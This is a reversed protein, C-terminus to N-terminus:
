NDEEAEDDDTESYDQAYGKQHFQKIIAQRYEFKKEALARLHACFELLEQNRNRLRNLHYDAQYPDHLTRIM